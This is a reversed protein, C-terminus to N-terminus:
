GVGLGQEYGHGSSYQVYMDEPGIKHGVDEWVNQIDDPSVDRDVLTHSEYDGGAGTTFIDHTHRVDYRTENGMEGDLHDAWGFYYKHGEFGEGTLSLVKGYQPAQQCGALAGCM